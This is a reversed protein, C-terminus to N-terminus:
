IRLILNVPASSQLSGPSYFVARHRSFDDPAYAENLAIASIQGPGADPTLKDTQTYYPETLILTLLVTSCGTFNCDDSCCDEEGESCKGESANIATDISDCCYHSVITIGSGATLFLLIFSILITKKM